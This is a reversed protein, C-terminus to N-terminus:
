YIPMIRLLTHEESLPKDFGYDESIINFQIITKVERKLFFFFGFKKAVGDVSLYDM